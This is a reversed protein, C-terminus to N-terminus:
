HGRSQRGSNDRLGRHVGIQLFLERSELAARGFGGFGVLFIEFANRQTHGAVIASIIGPRNEYFLGAAAFKAIKVAVFVDIVVKGETSQHRSVAMRRHHLGHFLAERGSRHKAHRMIHFPFQRFFDAVAKRNLHAPEAIAPGFRGHVGYTQGARSSPAVLDDLELAGIVSQVVACQNAHLRMSRVKAVDIIGCGNCTAKTYRFGGNLVHLDRREIVKGSDFPTEFLIRALDGRDNKLRNQHIDAQAHRM